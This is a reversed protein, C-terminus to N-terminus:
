KAGAEMSATEGETFRVVQDVPVRARIENLGSPWKIELRDVISNTGLGFHLRLDEASQYGRGARVEDVQTRGGATIRVVAGVASRNSKVGTLKLLIWHNQPATENMMVTARGRANLQVIDIRGDNNLDGFVAGRSVRSETLPGGVESGIEVFRGGRQQLLLSRQKYTSSGDYQEVSDQLHGAATYLERVGDNDFDVLGVGWTVLPRSGAGVGTEVTVDQFQPNGQINGLNRYLTNVQNQYDTVVIDVRGDGDYDGANSGMTGQPEGYQDCSVGAQLAIEDFTGNRLNRFLFNEVVDNGVYIDTWGDGDFDSCVLGMAYGHHRGIGSSDSVDRFTGDGHNRFLRNPVKPYSRPSCYVPVGAQWCPEAKAIDFELYNGVFLDVHGDRDYDLFACGAGICTEGFSAKSLGAKATVDAFIGNGQNRFLRHAGFNTIFIDELGDNDYDAVACGMAYGPVGLGSRATVDTFTGDRNNHYLENTSLRSPKPSGPLPNGNLFLLDPFGDNDYDILGLGSAVTEVIYRKGSSGDTHVFRVGSPETADRFRIAPAGFMTSIALYFLGTAALVPKVTGGSAKVRADLSRDSVARIRGSRAWQPIIRLLRTM